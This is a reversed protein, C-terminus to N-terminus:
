IQQREGKQCWFEFKVKYYDSLSCTGKKKTLFQVHLYNVSLEWALKDNVKVIFSPIITNGGRGLFGGVKKYFYKIPIQNGAFLPSTNEPLFTGWFKKKLTPENQSRIGQEPPPVTSYPPSIPAGGIFSRIWCNHTDPSLLNGFM